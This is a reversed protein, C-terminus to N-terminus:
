VASALYAPAPFGPTQVDRRGADDPPATIKYSSNEDVVHWGNL